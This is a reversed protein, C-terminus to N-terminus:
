RLTNPEFCYSTSDMFVRADGVLSDLDEGETKLFDVVDGLPPVRSCSMCIGKRGGEQTSNGPSVANKTETIVEAAEVTSRKAPEERLPDRSRARKPARVPTGTAVPARQSHAAAAAAGSTSRHDAIM